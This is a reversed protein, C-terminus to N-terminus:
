GTLQILRAFGCGTLNTSAKYINTWISFSVGACLEILLHQSHWFIAIPLAGQRESDRRELISSYVLAVFCFLVFLVLFIYYTTSFHQYLSQSLIFLFTLGQHPLPFYKRAYAAPTEKKVKKVSLNWKPEATWKQLKFINLVITQCISREWWLLEESVVRFGYIM